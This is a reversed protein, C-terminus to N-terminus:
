DLDFDLDDIDSALAAKDIIEGDPTVIADDNDNDSDSSNTDSDNHDNTQVELLTDVDARIGAIQDAITSIADMIQAIDNKSESEKQEESGSTNDESDDTIMRVAGMRALYSLKNMHM